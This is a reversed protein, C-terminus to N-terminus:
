TSLAALGNFLRRPHVVGDALVEAVGRFRGSADYLRVRGPAHTEPLRLRQGLLLRDVEVQALELAPLHPLAVDAPLLLAAPDSSAQVAALEHMEAGEFPAAHLRRLAALHGCTGIARALDEGLTRVYTGKSCRVTLTAAQEGCGLLELAEITVPRAAREVVEGRRAAEYLPEGDRKLASYMPPVQMMPGRFAPLIAVLRDPWDGPVPLTEVVEGEADGTSRREGLRLTFQYGKAGDLLDGAVKTAEGLCLPLLGTALPDLTGTHGAKVGGFVRRVRQLAANSSLGLPKDLLLIGCVSM